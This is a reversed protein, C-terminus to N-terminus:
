RATSSTPSTGSSAYFSELRSKGEKQKQDIYARAKPGVHVQVLAITDLSPQSADIVHRFPGTALRTPRRLIPHLLSRVSWQPRPRVPSPTAIGFHGDGRCRPHCRASPASRRCGSFSQCKSQNRVRNSV